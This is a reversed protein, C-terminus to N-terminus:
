KEQTKRPLLQIINFLLEAWVALVTSHHFGPLPSILFLNLDKANRSAAAIFGIFGGTTVTINRTWLHDM